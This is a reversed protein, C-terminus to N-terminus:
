NRYLDAPNITITSNVPTGHQLAPLFTMKSILKMVTEPIILDSDHIKTISGRDDLDITLPFDVTRADRIALLSPPSLSWAPLAPVTERPHDAQHSLQLFEKAERYTLEYHKESLNTPIEIGHSFLYVKTEQIEFGEAFGSRVFSVERPRPGISRLHHHFSTDRIRGDVLLRLSVFLYADELPVPSSVKLTIDLANANSSEGTVLGEEMLTADILNEIGDLGNSVESLDGSLQAGLVNGAAAAAPDNSNAMNSAVAIQNSLTNADRQILDAQDNLATQMSAQEVFASLDVARIAKAKFGDIKAGVSSVKTAIQWNIGDTNRLPVTTIKDQDLVVSDGAIRKIATIDNGQRVFLEAGVFLHHDRKEASRSSVTPTDAGLFPSAVWSLAAILFAPLALPTKIM